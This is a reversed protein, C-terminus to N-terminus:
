HGSLDYVVATGDERGIALLTGRLAARRGIPVKRASVEKLSSADFARLMEGDHVFLTRGDRSFQVLRAAASISVHQRREGKGRPDLLWVVPGAESPKELYGPFALRKGDPSLALAEIKVNPDAAIRKLEKGTKTDWVCLADPGLAAALLAGDQSFAAAEPPRDPSNEALKTKSLVKKAASDVSALILSDFFALAKGDPFLLLAACRGAGDIEVRGIEEGSAAEWVVITEGGLGVKKEDASVALRDGALALRRLHKGTRPDWERVEKGDSTWLSKEDASLALDAVAFCHADFPHLDKGTSADRIRVANGVRTAFLKGDPSFRVLSEGASLRWLDRGTALDIAKPPQTKAYLARGDPFFVLEDVAPFANKTRKGSPLDDFVLHGQAFSAVLNGDPSIACPVHTDQAELTKSLKGAQARFVHIKKKTEEPGSIISKGDASYSFLARDIPALKALLKGTGLDFLHGMAGEVVVCTKADPAIALRVAGKVPLEVERVEAGTEVESFRVNVGAPGKSASVLFAGGPAFVLDEVAGPTDIRRVEKADEVQFLAIGGKKGAAFLKRDPSFAAARVDGSFRLRASGCRAIAGAPLPDGLRDLKEKKPEESVAKEAEPTAAEEAKPRSETEQPAAAAQEGGGEGGGGSALVIALIIVGTFVLAIVVALGVLVTKSFPLAAAGAAAAAAGAEPGAGGAQRPRDYSVRVAPGRAGGFRITAGPEVVAIGRVREGNLITGNTSGLDRLELKGEANVSLEAHNGSVDADEVPDFQIHHGPNRGCTIKPGPFEQKQGKKSGALHEFVFAMPLIM